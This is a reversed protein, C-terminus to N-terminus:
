CVKSFFASNKKLLNIAKEKKNYLLILM